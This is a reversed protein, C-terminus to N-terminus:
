AAIIMFMIREMSKLAALYGIFYYIYVFDCRLVVDIKERLPKFQEKIKWLERDLFDKITTGTGQIIRNLVDNSGRTSSIVKDMQVESAHIESYIYMINKFKKFDYKLFLTSDALHTFEHFLIEKIYEKSCDEIKASVYLTYQKDYLDKTFFQAIADNGRIIEINKIIPIYQIKSVYEVWTLFVLFKLRKSVM